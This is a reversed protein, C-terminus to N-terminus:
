VSTRLADSVQAYGAIRLARVLEAARKAQQGARREALAAEAAVAVRRLAAITELLERRDALLAEVDAVYTRRAEQLAGQGHTEVHAALHRALLVRHRLAAIEPERLISSRVGSERLM